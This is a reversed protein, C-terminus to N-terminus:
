AVAKQKNKFYWYLNAVTLDTIEQWNSTALAKWDSAIAQQAIYSEYKRRLEPKFMFKLQDRLSLYHSKQKLNKYLEQEKPEVLITSEEQTDSSEVASLNSSALLQKERSSLTQMWDIHHQWSELVALDHNYIRTIEPFLFDLEDESACQDIVTLTDKCIKEQLCSLQHSAATPENQLQYTLAITQEIGWACELQRLQGAACNESLLHPSNYIALAKGLTQRANALDTNRISIDCSMALKILKTAEIFQGYAKIFELRQQEFKIDKAVENLCQIFETGQDKFVQKLDIFGHNIEFRLQKVDEKLKLTQYLNVASLAVSTVTGVGIVATTAQLVGVSDQLANLMAYTKQFGRHTQVMQLGDIVAVFPQSFAVFPQSLTRVAHGVIQGTAADRVMSLPVGTSSVVQKLTGNALGLMHEPRFVFNM